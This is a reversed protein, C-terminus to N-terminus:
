TTRRPWYNTSRPISQASPRSWMPGGIVTTICCACTSGADGSPSKPVSEDSASSEWRRRASRAGAHLRPRVKHVGALTRLPGRGGRPAGDDAALCLGHRSDGRRSDGAYQRGSDEAAAAAALDIHDVGVGYNSIVRLHPFRDLLPMDVRPHGYTYLAVVERDNATAATNWPVWEVAGHMLELVIPALPGDAMVRPPSQLAMRNAASKSDEANAM